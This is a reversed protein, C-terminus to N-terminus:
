ASKSGRLTKLKRCVVYIFLLACVIVVGTVTAAVIVLAVLVQTENMM